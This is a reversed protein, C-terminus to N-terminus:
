RRINCASNRPREKGYQNCVLQSSTVVARLSLYCRTDSVEITSTLVFCWILQNELRFDVLIRLKSHDNEIDRKFSLSIKANLQSLLLPSHNTTKTLAYPHPTASITRREEHRDTQRHTYTDIQRNSQRGTQRDAQRDSHCSATKGM